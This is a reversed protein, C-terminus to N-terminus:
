EPKTDLFRSKFQALSLLEDKLFAQVLTLAKERTRVVRQNGQKDRQQKDRLRSLLVRQLRDHRAIRVKEMRISYAYLLPNLASNLPAIFVYLAVKVDVSMDVGAASLLRLDQLPQFGETHLRHLGSDSLNLTQINPFVAMLVRDMEELQLRSLDLTIVSTLSTDLSLYVLMSNNTVDSPSMGTGSAELFRLEPYLAASFIRTCFFATGYCTCSNPCQKNGCHYQLFPDCPPFVCFDEDSDDKCDSRHDCVLTYPVHEIENMEPLSPTHQTLGIFVRELILKRLFDFVNKWEAYTNLSALKAGRKLCVDSAERWTLDTEPSILEYCSTGLSILGDGCAPSAFPCDSEDEGELCDAKLDCAFTRALHEGHTLSCNWKGEPSARPVTLNHFFAFYLKFGPYANGSTRFRLSLVNTEYTKPEPPHM